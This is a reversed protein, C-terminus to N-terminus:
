YSSEFIHVTHKTKYQELKTETAVSTIKKNKVFFSYKINNKIPSSIEASIYEPGTYTEGSKLIIKRKENHMKLELTLEYKTHNIFLTTNSHISACVSVEKKPKNPQNPQTQPETIKVERPFPITTLRDHSDENEKTINGEEDFYTQSKYWQIGADPHSSYHAEKVAGSEYHKFYVMANGAFRRVEKEYIIEGNQNFALAKGSQNKNLTTITSVKGNKFYHIHTTDVQGNSVGVISVFFLFLILRM